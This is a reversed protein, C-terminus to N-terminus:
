NYCTGTMVVMWLLKLLAVADTPTGEFHKFNWCQVFIFFFLIVSFFQFYNENDKFLKSNSSTLSKFIIALNTKFSKVRLSGNM